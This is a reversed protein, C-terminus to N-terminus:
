GNLTSAVAALVADHFQGNTVVVGRNDSLESGLSFDLPKGDVDTVQGGAEEVVLVGGAHDWVKERYGPRTPLRLYMDAEGRAVVAYKAQSDLRVPPATIGLKEMIEASGSHDSHGSEVSECMRAREPTKTNSVRVAQPAAKLDALRYLQAGQGRVATMIIGREKDWPDSAALNPCALAAVQIQGDVILALSVAFQEKRLFGKTGDIPDLTWYRSASGDHGGLDIWDCALEPTAPLGAQQLETVIQQVFQASEGTRLDVADEEALVPIDPFAAHLSHCVIAQSAYDAITVPSRDKKELSEPQIQSQVSQCVRAAKAVADLAAQLEQHYPKSM